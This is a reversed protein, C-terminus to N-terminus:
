EEERVEPWLAVPGANAAAEFGRGGVVSVLEGEVICRPEVDEVEEFSFEASLAPGRSEEFGAYRSTFGGLTRM